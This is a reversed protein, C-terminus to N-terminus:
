RPSSAPVTPYDPAEAAAALPLRVSFSSGQGETSEVTITGGHLQVIEHAVYLGIGLGTIGHPTANVARYFREFLRPLAAAPIGVGCDAVTVTVEGLERAVRVTVPGGAPSYKVANGILNYLVQELRIEDGLVLLQEDPLDVTLTHRTLLHASEDVIRVLLAGLDLVRRDITLHGAEIRTHDLLAAILRNLRQTQGVIVELTRRDRPNFSSERDARRLMLQVNGLLATLPTKLEHAAVSLFEDRARVSAEAETRARVEARLVAFLVASILTGALLIFLVMLSASRQEVDPRSAYRVTWRQGAIQLSTLESFRPRSTVGESRYLLQEPATTTGDYVEFAVQPSLQTGLVATLLDDARFPSYAFGILQARREDISAPADGDRYIPVYILFGAQKQEDIEQVLVVKGSAAALASDRAREMAARRVPESFMDYGLAVRNRRDLPELFLIPFYEARQGEPWIQVDHLGDRRLAAGFADVEGPLVHQSFGIGQIGPYRERLNLREVYSTFESRTVTESAAYLGAVGRLLSTYTEVRAAIADQTQHVQNSFRLRDNADATISVLLAALMTLALSGGLALYPLTQRLNRPPRRRPSQSM